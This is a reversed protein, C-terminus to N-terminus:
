VENDTFTVEETIEFTGKSITKKYDEQKVELDYVYLGYNLNDTDEPEIVFTYKGDTFTCDDITKQILVDTTVYNNKVTFYLADAKITIPNGDSDKRIFSFTQTDGRTLTLKSM